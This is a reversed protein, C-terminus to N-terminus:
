FLYALAINFFFGEGLDHSKGSGYYSEGFAYGGSVQLLSLDLAGYAGGWGLVLSDDETGAVQFGSECTKYGIRIGAFDGWEDEETFFRYELNLDYGIGRDRWKSIDSIIFSSNFRFRSEPGIVIDIMPSSLFEFAAFVPSSSFEYRLYPFPVVPWLDGNVEMGGGAFMLSGGLYLSHM